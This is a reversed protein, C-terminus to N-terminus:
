TDKNSVLLQSQADRPFEHENFLENEKVVRGIVEDVYSM